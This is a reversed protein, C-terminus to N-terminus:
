ISDGYGRGGRGFQDGRTRSEYQNLSYVQEHKNPVIDIDGPTGFGGTFSYSDEEFLSDRDRPKNEKGYPNISRNTHGHPYFRREDSV